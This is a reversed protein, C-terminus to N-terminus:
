QAIVDRHTEAADHDDRLDSRSEQIHTRAQETEGLTIFGMTALGNRIEGGFAIVAVAVAAVVLLGLVVYEMLVGGTREGALRKFLRGMRTNGGLRRGKRMRKRAHM